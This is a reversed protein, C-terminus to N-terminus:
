VGDVRVPDGVRITGESLIDCRLGGRHILGEKAMKDTLGALHNCPENLRVGRVRVEGVYFEKDVLHNLPVGRTVVNRRADKYPLDLKYDRRLADIAEAEIMTLDRGTGPTRSFSGRGEFYRDGELGRGPVARASEVEQITGEPEPTIGITVVSGEWSM